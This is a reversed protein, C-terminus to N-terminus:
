AAGDPGTEAAKGHHGCGWGVGDRPGTSGEEAQVKGRPGSGGPMEEGEASTRGEGFAGSM